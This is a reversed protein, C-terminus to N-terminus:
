GEWVHLRTFTLCVLADRLGVTLQRQVADFAGEVTSLGRDIGGLMRCLTCAALEDHACCASSVRRFSGPTLAM